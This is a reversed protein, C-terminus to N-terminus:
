PAEDPAAVSIAERNRTHFFTWTKVVIGNRQQWERIAERICRDFDAEQEKTLSALYDDIESGYDDEYIRENIEELLRDTSVYRALDLPDKKAEMIHFVMTQSEHDYGLEDSTAADVVEQRSDCPGVTYIEEDSSAYWKWDHESMDM